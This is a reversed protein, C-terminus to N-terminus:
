SEVTLSLDNYDMKKWVCFAGVSEKKQRLYVIMGRRDLDAIFAHYQDDDKKLAPDTYCQRKGQEKVKCAFEDDSLFLRKEFQKIDLSDEGELCSLLDCQGAVDPLSQLSLDFPAPGASVGSEDFDCYRHAKCGLISSLSENPDLDSYKFSNFVGM